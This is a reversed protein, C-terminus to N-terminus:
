RNKRRHLLVAGGALLALTAPEPVGPIPIDDNAAVQVEMDGKIWDHDSYLFLFWSKNGQVLTSNEFRWIAKTVDANFYGDEKPEIGASNHGGVSGSQGIDETISAISAPNIGTLAFNTLAATTPSDCFVQYAYVYDKVDGTYGTWDQMLQAENDKYVSFELRVTFTGEAGLNFTQVNQGKYYTSALDTLLLGAQVAPVMLLVPVIAICIKKM